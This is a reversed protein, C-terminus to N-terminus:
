NKMVNKKNKYRPFTGFVYKFGSDPETQVPHDLFVMGRNDHDIDAGRIRMGIDAFM